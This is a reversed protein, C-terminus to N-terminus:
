GDKGMLKFWHWSNRDKHNAMFTFVFCENVILFEDPHDLIVKLWAITNPFIATGSIPGEVGKESCSSVRLRTLWEIGEHLYQTSPLSSDKTWGRASGYSCSKHSSSDCGIITYWPSKWFHRFAFVRLIIWNWDSNWVGQAVEGWSDVITPYHPSSREPASQIWEPRQYPQLCHFVCLGTQEFNLM